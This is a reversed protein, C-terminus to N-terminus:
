SPQGLSVPVCVRSSWVVLSSASVTVFIHDPRAVRLDSISPEHERKGRSQQDQDGARQEDAGSSSQSATDHGDCEDNETESQNPGEYAHTQPVGCPWYM